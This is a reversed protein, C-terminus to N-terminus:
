FVLAVEVDELRALEVQTAADLVLIAMSRGEIEQTLMMTVPNPRGRELVVERTSEGYGYAAMAPAAVDRRNARGVVAVRIAAAGFLGAGESTLTVSFFRTTVKKREMQATVTPRQAPAAPERHARLVAVPVVVEQLSIGGHFYQRGGGKVRFCALGRPCAFELDGGLGLRGAAVRLVGPGTEGGKGIWVRRALHVTKGGPADIKLGSEIEEGFLYGHDAALVIRTVGMAALNRLGRRLQDLVADMVQRALHVHDGESLADMEQPTVVIIAADAVKSKTAKSPKLLDDLKLVAITKPLRTQLFALRGSRDKLAAGGIEVGLSGKGAEVLSLGTEAGPLLAAMGVPTITSIAAVAPSLTVEFGDGLGELLERGMEFRLADVWVYATKAEAEIAAQVHSAFTRAQRPLDGWDFASAELTASFVEAMAGVTNMYERRAQRVVAELHDHDGGPDLDFAAFQRELHRHFTDLLCWPTEGEAYRRVLAAPNAPTAKLEERIRGATQILRCATEVVHWRLLWMGEQSPWFSLRRSHALELVRQTQGAVAAEEALRILRAEHGLFTATGALAELPLHFDHAGVEGEVERAAAVYAPRLDARNRWEEALAQIAKRHDAAPPIPVRELQLPMQDPPISAVFETLLLLRRFASRVEGPSGADPVQIGLGRSVLAALEPMAGRAELPEDLSPDALFKLAVESVEATGYVLLLGDVGPGPGQEALRDLDELRYHGKAAKACIAEVQEAALAKCIAQRAVVKLRTNRPLAPAGPELVSGATEFEVLANEMEERARPVYVVLRPPREAGDAFRGDSGVFELLPDVQARLRFLSDELGAM